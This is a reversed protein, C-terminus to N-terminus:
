GGEDDCVVYTQSPDYGIRTFTTTLQQLEPLRGSAPPVGCVLESPAIHIANPIHHAVFVEPSTVQIVKYEPSKELSLPSIPSPNITM